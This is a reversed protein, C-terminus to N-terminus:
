GPREARALVWVEVEKVGARQLARTLEAVTAGTSLVDDVVALRRPPDPWAVQFAGRVNRQRQRAHLLSQPETALTRRCTNTFLPLGLSRALPRALELAQNFGRARLRSPHLPVPVIGQVGTTVMARTMLTGLLRASAVDRHFKHRLILHDLPVGYRYPAICRGFPPPRKLCEGCVLASGRAL